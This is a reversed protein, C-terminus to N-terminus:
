IQYWENRVQLHQQLTFFFLSPLASGFNASILIQHWCLLPFCWTKIGSEVNLHLWEPTKRLTCPFVHKQQPRMDTHRKSRARSCVHSRVEVQLRRHRVRRGDGDLYLCLSLVCFASPCVLSYREWENGPDWLLLWRLLWCVWSCTSVAAEPCRPSLQLATVRGWVSLIGCRWFYRFNWGKKKEM